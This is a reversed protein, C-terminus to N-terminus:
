NILVRVIAMCFYNSIYVMIIYKLIFRIMNNTSNPMIFQRILYIIILTHGVRSAIFILIQIYICKYDYKISSSSTKQSFYIISLNYMCFYYESSTTLRERWAMPNTVLGQLGPWYLHSRDVLQGSHGKLQNNQSQSLYQAM